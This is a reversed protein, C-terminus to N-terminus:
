WGLCPRALWDEREEEEEKKRKNNNKREKKARRLLGGLFVCFLFLFSFLFFM